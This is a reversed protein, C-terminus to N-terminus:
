TASVQQWSTHGALQLVPQRLQQNSYGNVSTVALQLLELPLWAGRKLM